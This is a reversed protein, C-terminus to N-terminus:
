YQAANVSFHCLDLFWSKKRLLFFDFELSKLILKKENDLFYKNKILATIDTSTKIIGYYNIKGDDEYWLSTGLTPFKQNYGRRPLLGLM